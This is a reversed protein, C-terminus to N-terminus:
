YDPVNSVFGCHSVTYYEGYEWVPAALAACLESCAARLGNM